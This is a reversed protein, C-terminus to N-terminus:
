LQHSNQNEYQLSFLRLNFILSTMVFPMHKGGLDACDRGMGGYFSALFEDISIKGAAPFIYVSILGKSKQM